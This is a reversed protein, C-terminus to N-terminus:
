RGFRIYQIYQVITIALNLANISTVIWFWMSWDEWYWKGSTTMIVPFTIAAISFGILLASNKWFYSLFRVFRKFRTM